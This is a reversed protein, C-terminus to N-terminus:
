SAFLTLISFIGQMCGVLNLLNFVYDMLHCSGLGIKLIVVGFNDLAASGSFNTVKSMGLNLAM